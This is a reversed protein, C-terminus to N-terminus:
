PGDPYGAGGAAHSAARCERGAGGGGAGVFGTWAGVRRADGRGADGAVRGGRRLVCTRGGPGGGRRGRDARAAVGAGARRRDADRLPSRGRAPPDDGLDEDVQKRNERPLIVRALGCRHAALVKEQIGGVPLVQGSLTIEGTMALDERVARGTCAAVLAAAMTVGASAGDNHAANSQVHLHLDAERQFSAGIGYRGANARLWSLATRASEQMVEGVRGSLTLAGSGPMRVAEICIVDGGGAM